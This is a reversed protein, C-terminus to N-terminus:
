DSAFDLFEIPQKVAKLPLMHNDRSLCEIPPRLEPGPNTSYFLGTLEEIYVPLCVSSRGLFTANAVLLASNNARVHDTMGDYHYWGPRFGSSEHIYKICAFHCRRPWLIVTDLYLPPLGPLQLEADIVLTARKTTSRYTPFRFFLQQGTLAVVRVSKILTDADENVSGCAAIRCTLNKKCRGCKKGQRGQWGVTSKFPVLAEIASQVVTSLSVRAGDPYRSAAVLGHSFDVVARTQEFVDEADCEFCSRRFEITLGSYMTLFPMLPYWIEMFNLGQSSYPVSHVAPIDFLLDHLGQWFRHKSDSMWHYGRGPTELADDLVKASLRV